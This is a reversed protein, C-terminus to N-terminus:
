YNCYNNENCSNLMNKRVITNSLWYAQSDARENTGRVYVYFLSGSGDLREICTHLVRLVDCICITNTQIGTM